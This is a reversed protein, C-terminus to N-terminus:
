KFVEEIISALQQKHLHHSGTATAASRDRGVYRLPIEKPLLDQLQPRIYDWAGMNAHEEQVWLCEKCGSYKQMLVKLKGVHLPYLQEIRVIAVADTKRKEREEFLEYYIKGSCVILKKPSSLAKPDDLVEEFSGQSFANLPSVCLPHRLIAKPTFLVLPKKVARLAQRRLVHFLQAPLTCNVIQMNDHGCLQLFREMRGSSHEPGQGEYGHPLMLVIPSQHMWKQESSSIYQDIIIQAGNAFDGYQAEWIVLKKDTFLSYGFEFGLVAYESLSSNFVDFLGQGEKLHSLPFYKQDNVQDVWM